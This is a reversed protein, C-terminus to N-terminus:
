KNSGILKRSNENPLQAVGLVKGQSDLEYVHDGIVRYNVDSEVKEPKEPEEVKDKAMALLFIGVFAVPIGVNPMQMTLLAGGVLAGLGVTKLDM